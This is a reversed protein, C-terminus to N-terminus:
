GSMLQHSSRLTTRGRTITFWVSILMETYIQTHVYTKLEEPDTGLLPIVPDNPFEINLKTLLWCVAKWLLQQVPLM